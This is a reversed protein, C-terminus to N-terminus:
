KASTAEWLGGAALQSLREDTISEAPFLLSHIDAPSAIMRLSPAFVIDDRSCYYLAAWRRHAHAWTVQETRQALRAQVFQVVAVAPILLGFWALAVSRSVHTAEVPIDIYTQARLAALVMLIVALVLLPPLCDLAPRYFAVRRPPSPGELMEALETEYHAVEGDQWFLKGRGQRVISSVKDLRDKSQCVPCTVRPRAPARERAKPTSGNRSRAGNQGAATSLRVPETDKLQQTM